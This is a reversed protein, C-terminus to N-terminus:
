KGALGHLIFGAATGVLASVAIMAMWAGSLASRSERLSRIEEAQTKQFDSLTRRVDETREGARIFEKEVEGKQAFLTERADMKRQLDNHGQNYITQGVEAKTIARDASDFAAKVQEKYAVMATDVAKNSANFREEYRRDRETAVDQVREFKEDLLKGLADLEATLERLSPEHTRGNEEAM